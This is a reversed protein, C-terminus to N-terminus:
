KLLQCFHKTSDPSTKKKAKFGRQSWYIYFIIVQYKQSTQRLSHLYISNRRPFPFHEDLCNPLFSSLQQSHLLSSWASPHHQGPIGIVLLLDSFGYPGSLTSDSVVHGFHGLKM